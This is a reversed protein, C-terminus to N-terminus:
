PVIFSPIRQEIIYEATAFIVIRNKVKVNFKNGGHFHLANCLVTTIIIMSSVRIRAM